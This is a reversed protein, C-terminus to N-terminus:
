IMVKTSKESIKDNVTQLGLEVWVYYKKSYSKILKVKEENLCDPRTAIALGVIRDCHKIMNKRKVKRHEM